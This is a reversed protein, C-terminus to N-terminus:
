PLGEPVLQRAPGGEPAPTAYPSEFVDTIAAPRLAAFALVILLLAIGAIEEPAFRSLRRVHGTCRM